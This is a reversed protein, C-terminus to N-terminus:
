QRDTTEQLMEWHAIMSWHVMLLTAAEIARTLASSEQTTHSALAKWLSTGANRAKLLTKIKNRNWQM